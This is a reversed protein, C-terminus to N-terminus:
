RVPLTVEIAPPPAADCAVVRRTADTHYTLRTGGIEVVVLFGPTIVQAFDMGPRGCGLGADPWEVPQVSVVHVAVSAVGAQEAAHAVVFEVVRGGASRSPAPLGPQAAAPGPVLVSPPVGSPGHQDLEPAPEDPGPTDDDIMPTVEDSPPDM